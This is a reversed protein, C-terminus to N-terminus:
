INNRKTKRKGKSNKSQAPKVEESNANLKEKSKEPLGKFFKELSRALRKTQKWPDFLWKVIKGVLIWGALLILFWSLWHIGGQAGPQYKEPVVQSITQSVTAICRDITEGFQVLKAVQEEAFKAVPRIILYHAVKWILWAGVIVIVASVLYPLIFTLGAKSGSLILPWSWAGAKVLHPWWLPSTRYAWIVGQGIVAATLAWRNANAFVHSFNERALKEEASIITEAPETQKTETRTLETKLAELRRELEQDEESWELPEEIKPETIEPIEQSTSASIPIETSITEESIKEPEVKPKAPQKSTKEAELQAIRTKLKTKIINNLEKWCKEMGEIDLEPSFLFWSDKSFDNEHIVRFKQQYTFFFKKKVERKRFDILINTNGYYNEYNSRVGELREPLLIIEWEDLEKEDIQELIKTSITGEEEDIDFLSKRVFEREEYEYDKLDKKNRIKM